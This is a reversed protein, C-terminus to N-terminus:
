TVPGIRKISEENHKINMLMDETMKALDYKAQFGWENQAVSSDMEDPWSDAIRQLVPNVDYSLKFEPIHCKIAAEFDEPAASFASINYANRHKLQMPDAEMLQVIADIADPIYMMDMYTQKAIPSTYEGNEVAKFYIEVSYDTTGGGPKTKYSILGPFRIGRTDVGYRKFYYDCLLEGAVKNVGYMTTPRQYTIQPTQHKPTTPGFAAISSPTFLKLGLERAVELVNILGGMNVNWAKKPDVEAKASLIAALHIITDVKYKQAVDFLPRRKTVDVIAFPIDTDSESSERIDSAIVNSRGYIERLKLALESGIQGNAGTILIKKM